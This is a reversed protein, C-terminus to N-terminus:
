WPALKGGSDVVARLRAPMLDVWVNVREQDLVVHRWADRAADRLSAEDWDRLPKVKWRKGPPWVSDLPSLDPSDGCNFHSRLGNLEKWQRVMNVKSLAGHAFSETDEELIFSQPGGMAPQLWPKVHRELVKDHYAAMTMAGSSNPSTSDHYFVLDSKFDHGVCAWAHVRKVDRTWRVRPGDAGDDGGGGGGGGECGPCHKEGPRPVVRMAGDLGFGFHLECGFRVTRWATGAGAFADLMKRAWEVRRERCRRSVWARGCGLCRRYGLTGMTRHMTRPNCGMEVGAHRALGAWNLYVDEYAEDWLISEMKQQDGDSVKGPRGRTEEWEPDNRRSAPGSLAAYGQSRSLEFHRFIASKNVPLGQSELYSITGRVMAKKPADGHKYDPAM